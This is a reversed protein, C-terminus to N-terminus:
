AVRPRHYTCKRGKEHYGTICAMWKKCCHPAGLGGHHCVIPRHAGYDLWECRPDAKRGFPLFREALKLSHYVAANPNRDDPHRKDFDHQKVKVRLLRRHGFAEYVLMGIYADELMKVKPPYFKSYNAMVRGKFPNFASRRSGVVVAEDADLPRMIAEVLPRSFAAFAGAPYSFPGILGSHTCEGTLNRSKAAFHRRFSFANCSPVMSSRHWMYWDKMEAYVVYPGTAQYEPTQMLARLEFGVASANVIADDDLRGVFDFAQGHRVVFRLLANMLLYKGVVKEDASPPLPVTLVDSSGADSANSQLMVFKLVVQEDIPMRTRLAARHVLNKPWTLVGLLLTHRTAHRATTPPVTSVWDILLRKLSDLM